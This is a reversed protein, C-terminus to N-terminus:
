SLFLEGDIYFEDLLYDVTLEYKEAVKELKNYFVTPIEYYETEIMKNNKM